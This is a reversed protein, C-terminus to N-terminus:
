IEKQSLNEDLFHAQFVIIDDATATQARGLFPTDSQPSCYGLQLNSTVLVSTVADSNLTVKRFLWRLILSM